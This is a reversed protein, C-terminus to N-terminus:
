VQQLYLLVKFSCIGTRSHVLNLSCMPLILRQGTLALHQGSRSFSYGLDRVMAVIMKLYHFCTIPPPFPFVFWCSCLTNGPRFHLVVICRICAWVRSDEISFECSGCAPVTLNKMSYKYWKECNMDKHAGCVFRDDLVCNLYSHHTRMLCFEHLLCQFYSISRCSETLIFRIFLHATSKRAAHFLNPSALLIEFHNFYVLNGKSHCPIGAV